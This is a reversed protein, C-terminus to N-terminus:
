ASQRIKILLSTHLCYGYSQYFNYLIYINAYLNRMHRVVIGERCQVSYRQLLYILLCINFPITQNLLAKQFLEAIM